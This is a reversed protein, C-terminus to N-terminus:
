GARRDSTGGGVAGLLSAKARRSRKREKPFLDRDFFSLQMSGHLIKNARRLAETAECMRRIRGARPTADWLRLAAAALIQGLIQKGRDTPTLARVRGDSNARSIEILGKRALLACARSTAYDALGTERRLREETLRNSPGVSEAEVARELAYLALYTVGQRRLEPLTILLFLNGVPAM